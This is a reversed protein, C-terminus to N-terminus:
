KVFNKGPPSDDVMDAMAKIQGTLRDFARLDAKRVRDLDNIASEMEAPYRRGVARLERLNGGDRREVIERGLRLFDL